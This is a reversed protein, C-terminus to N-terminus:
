SPRPAVALSCHRETAAGGSGSTSPKGALFSQETPRALDRCFYFLDDQETASAAIWQLDDLSMTPLGSLQPTALHAASAIVLLPVLEMGAPLELSGAPMPVRVPAHPHGQAYRAAQLAAPPQYPLAPATLDNVLQVLVARETGTM